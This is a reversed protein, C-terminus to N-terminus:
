LTAVAIVTAILVIGFIYLNSIHFEKKLFVFGNIVGLIYMVVFLYQWINRTKLQKEMPKSAKIQNRATTLAQMQTNFENKIDFLSQHNNEMNNRQTNIKSRILATRNKMDEISSNLQAKYQEMKSRLTLATQRPIEYGPTGKLAWNLYAQKYNDIHSLFQRYESDM